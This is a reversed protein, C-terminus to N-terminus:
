EVQAEHKTREEAWWADFPTKQWTTTATTVESETQALVSTVVFAESTEELPGITKLPLGEPTGGVEAALRARLRSWEEEDLPPAAGQIGGPRAEPSGGTRQWSTERYAGGMTKMCAVDDCGASAAQATARLAGHFRDDFAYADRVLREALAQRALTEA